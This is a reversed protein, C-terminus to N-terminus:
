YSRSRTQPLPIIPVRPCPLDTWTGLTKIQKGCLVARHGGLRVQFLCSFVSDEKVQVVVEGNLEFECM